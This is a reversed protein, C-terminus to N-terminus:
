GEPGHHKGPLDIRGAPIGSNKGHEIESYQFLTLM